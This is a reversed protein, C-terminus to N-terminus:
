KWTSQFDGDKFGISAKESSLVMPRKLLKGQGDLAKVMEDESLEKIKDKWNESKYQVGSTNFAKKIPSESKSIISKIEDLSPPNLTIDIFEYEVGMEELAKEAKRSTGCRKYGYFKIKSSM